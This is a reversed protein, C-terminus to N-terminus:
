SAKEKSSRIIKAFILLLEHAEARLQEIIEEHEPHIKLLLRLWHRAEKTEKKCLTIKHVFDKKSGAETAECYNAGISGAAGTLQDIIRGNRFTVELGNLFAVVDEAFVVTREELNYRQNVQASMSLQYNLISLEVHMLIETM